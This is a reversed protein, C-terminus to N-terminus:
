RDSPEPQVVFRYNAHCANCIAMLQAARVLPKAIPEHSEIGATLEDFGRRLAVAMPKWVPPLKASLAAPRDSDREGYSAMGPSRAATAAGPADDQGLARIIGTLAELNGHMEGLLYDQESLLLVIPQRASSTANDPAAQGALGLALARGFISHLRRNL